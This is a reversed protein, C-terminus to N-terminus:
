SAQDKWPTPAEEENAPRDSPDGDPNDPLDDSLGPAPQVSRLATYVEASKKLSRDARFILKPLRRLNVTEGLRSRLHGAAHQLGHLTLEAQDEPTVSVLVTAERLDDSVRVRTVTILGRVRPDSLGRALIQQMARLIVSGLQEQRATMASHAAHDIVSRTGPM